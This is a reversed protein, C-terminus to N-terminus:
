APAEIEQGCKPCRFSVAKSFDDLIDPKIEKLVTILNEPPPTVAMRAKRLPRIRLTNHAAMLLTEGTQPNRLKREKRRVVDFKCIGPLSFGGEKAAERFIVAQLSDLLKRVEKRKLSTAASLEKVLDTKTFTSKM